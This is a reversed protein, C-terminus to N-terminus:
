EGPSTHKPPQVWPNFSVETENWLLHIAALLDMEMTMLKELSMSAGMLSDPASFPHIM